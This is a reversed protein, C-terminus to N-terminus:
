KESQHGSGTRLRDFPPRDRGAEETGSAWVTRPSASRHVWRGTGFWVGLAGLGSGGDERSRVYPGRKLGAEEARPAWGNTTVLSSTRM